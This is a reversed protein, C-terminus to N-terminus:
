PMLSSNSMTASSLHTYSVAAARGTGMGDCLLMQARGASDCFQDLADGSVTQGKAPHAAAGFEAAFLPKEGFSLM